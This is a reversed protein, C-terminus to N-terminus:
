RSGAQTPKFDSAVVTQHFIENVDGVHGECMVAQLTSRASPLLLFPSDLLSPPHLESPQAHMGM